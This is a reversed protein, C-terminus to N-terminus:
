DWWIRCLGNDEISMENPRLEHILLLFDHCVIEPIKLYLSGTSENDEALEVFIKKVGTYYMDQIKDCPDLNYNGNLHANPFKKMWTEIKMLKNKM